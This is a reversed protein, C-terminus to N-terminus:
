IQVEQLFIQFNGKTNRYEAIGAGGKIIASSQNVFTFLVGM